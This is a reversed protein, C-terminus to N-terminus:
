KGGVAVQIFALSVLICFFIVAIKVARIRVIVVMLACAIWVLPARDYPTPIPSLLFTILSAHTSPYRLPIATSVRITVFDSGRRTGM